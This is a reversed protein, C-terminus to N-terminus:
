QRQRETLGASSMPKWSFLFQGNADARPPTRAAPRPLPEILWALRRAKVNGASFSDEVAIAIPTQSALARQVLGRALGLRVGACRRGRRCVRPKLGFRRADRLSPLEAFAGVQVVLPIGDLGARLSGVQAAFSPFLRPLAFRRKAGMRLLRASTPHEAWLRERLRFADAHRLHGEYAAWTARLAEVSALNLAWVRAPGRVVGLPAMSFCRKAPVDTPALPRELVALREEMQRVVRRRPLVYGPRVIYGVFDVGGSVPRPGRTPHAHLQLRDALFSRIRKEWDVLTAPDTHLLVFDDVYRVYQRAGLTRKM